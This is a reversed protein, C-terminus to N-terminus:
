ARQLPKRADYIGSVIFVIADRLRVNAAAANNISNACSVDTQATGSAAQAMEGFATWRCRTSHQGAPLWGGPWHGSWLFSDSEVPQWMVHAFCPVVGNTGPTAPTWGGDNAIAIAAPVTRETM